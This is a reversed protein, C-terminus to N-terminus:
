LSKYSFNERFTFFIALDCLVCCQAKCFLIRAITSCVSEFITNQKCFQESRSHSFFTRFGFLAQILHILNTQWRKKKSSPQTFLTEWELKFELEALALVIDSVTYQLQAFTALSLASNLQFALESGSPFFDIQKM